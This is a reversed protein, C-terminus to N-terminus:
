FHHRERRKRRQEEVWAASDTIGQDAWGGILGAEVIEAGTLPEIKLAHELEDSTWGTEPPIEITIRAEGAPLGSPLEVELNGADTIRGNLQIVM